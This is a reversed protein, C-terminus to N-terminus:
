PELQFKKKSLFKLHNEIRSSAELIKKRQSVQLRELAVRCFYSDGLGSHLLKLQSIELCNEQQIYKINLSLEFIDIRCCDQLDLKKLNRCKGLIILVSEFSLECNGSLNMEQIAHGQFVNLFKYLKSDSLCDNILDVKSILSSNGVVFNRFFSNLQMWKLVVKFDEIGIHFRLIM